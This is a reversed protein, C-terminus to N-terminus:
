ILWLLNSTSCLALLGDDREQGDVGKSPAERWEAAWKEVKAWSQMELKTDDTINGPDKDWALKHPGLHFCPDVQYSLFGQQAAPMM